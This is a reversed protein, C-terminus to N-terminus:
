HKSLVVGSSQSDQWWANAGSEAFPTGYQGLAGVGISAGIANNRAANLSSFIGM